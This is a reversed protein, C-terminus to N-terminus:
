IRCAVFHFDIVRVGEKKYAFLKLTFKGIIFVDDSDVPSIAGHGVEAAKAEDHFYLLM